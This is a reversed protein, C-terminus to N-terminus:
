LLIAEVMEGVGRAPDHPPRILLADASALVSLLASDQWKAAAIRGAEIRASAYLKNYTGAAIWRSGNQDEWTVM